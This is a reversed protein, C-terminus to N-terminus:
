NERIESQKSSAILSAPRYFLKLSSNIATCVVRSIFFSSYELLGACMNVSQKLPSYMILAFIFCEVICLLWGSLVM